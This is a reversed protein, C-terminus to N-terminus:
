LKKLDKVAEGEDAALSMARMRPFWELNKEQVILPTNIRM